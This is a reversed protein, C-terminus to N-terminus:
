TGMNMDEDDDGNEQFSRQSIEFMEQGQLFTIPNKGDTTVVQGQRTILIVDKIDTDKVELMPYTFLHGDHFLHINAAPHNKFADFSQPITKEALKKSIKRLHTLATFFNDSTIPAADEKLSPVLNATLTGINKSTESVDTTGTAFRTLLQAKVFESNRKLQKLLIKIKPITNGEDKLPEHTLSWYKTLITLLEDVSKATNRVDEILKDKEVELDFKEKVVEEKGGIVGAFRKIGEFTKHANDGTFLYNLLFMGSVSGVGFIGALLGSLDKDDLAGNGVPVNFRRAEAWKSLPAGDVITADTVPLAGHILHIFENKARATAGTQNILRVGVQALVVGQSVVDVLAISQTHLRGLSLRLTM